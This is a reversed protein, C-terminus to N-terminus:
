NIIVNDTPHKLPPESHQGFMGTLLSLLGVRGLFMALCLLIKSITGLEPTVGLSSGVTFLASAAEYLLAKTSLRPELAILAMALIIYSVISMIVVTQARQVSEDSVTRNYMVVSKRGKVVAKMQTLVVALTNVKIGGATSQSGGGIWMLVMMMVITINMFGSPNLSSFGSSRPVFANFVSQSIKDYLSMGALSNDYEFILFLLASIIFIVSTTTIVIKTNMDYIHLIEGHRDKGSLKRLMRKLYSAAASKLNVLIPFGLGGAFILASLVWYIMQNSHLFQPNALGGEINSFGANCFGSLAHFASFTLEENLTMGLTGHVCFFIAVAGVAEVILTFGLIYFLTPLLSNMTKSYILDKMMLQSYVSTGGSFFMAFFSTFTMVGLGGIQILLSLVIIGLPTFQTACDVTTLGTICVASTSVFLSDCYSIGGVTCNPLMLVFSGIIIFFIFSTALLFAPNIRRNLTRMIGYCFEVVAYIGVISFIVRRDYLIDCLWHIWPHEPRPYLLPLLTLLILVDMLRNLWRRRGHGSNGNLVFNCVVKIIFMIQSWRIIDRLMDFDAKERDLGVILISAAICAAAAIFALAGTMDTVVRIPQASRMRFRNYGYRGNRWIPKIKQIISM